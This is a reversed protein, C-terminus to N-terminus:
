SDLENTVKISNPISAAGYIASAVLAGILIKKAKGKFYEAPNVIKYSVAPRNQPLRIEEM